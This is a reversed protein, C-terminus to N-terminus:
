KAGSNIADLPWPDSPKWKKRGPFHWHNLLGRILLHKKRQHTSSESLFICSMQSVNLSNKKIDRYYSEQSYTATFVNSSTVETPNKNISDNKSMSTITGYWLLDLLDLMLMWRYCTHSKEYWMYITWFGLSHPSPISYVLRLLHLPLFLRWALIYHIPLSKFYSKWWTWTLSISHDNAWITHCLRLTIKPSTSLWIWEIISKRVEQIMRFTSVSKM